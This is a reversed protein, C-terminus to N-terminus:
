FRKCTLLQQMNCINGYEGEIQVAKENRCSLRMGDLFQQVIGKSETSERRPKEAKNHVHSQARQEELARLEEQMAKKGREVVADLPDEEYANIADAELRNGNGNSASNHNSNVSATTREDEEGEAEGVSGATDSNGKPRAEEPTSSPTTTIQLEKAAKIQFLSSINEKVGDVESSIKSTMTDMAKGMSEKTNAAAKAANSGAQEMSHRADSAMRQASKGAAGVADRAGDAMRQAGNAMREGAAGVANRAGQMASQMSDRTELLKSEIATGVGETAKVAEEKQAAVVKDVHQELDQLMQEGESELEEVSDGLPTDPMQEEVKATVDIGNNIFRIENVVKTSDEADETTTIEVALQEDEETPPTPTSIQIDTHQLNEALSNEEVTELSDVLDPSTREIEDHNM